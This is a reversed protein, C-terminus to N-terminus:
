DGAAVWIIDHTGLHTSTNPLQNSCFESYFNLAAGQRPGLIYAPWHNDM